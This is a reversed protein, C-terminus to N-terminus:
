LPRRIYIYIYIYQCMCVKYMYIYIYVYLLYMKQMIHVCIHLHVYVCIDVYTCIYIYIYIYVKNSGWTEHAECILSSKYNQGQLGVVRTGPLSGLNVFILMHLPKASSIWLSISASIPLSLSLLMYTDRGKHVHSCIITILCMYLYERM